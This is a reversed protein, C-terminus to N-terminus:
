ENEQYEFTIKRRRMRIPPSEFDNRLVIAHNEREHHPLYAVQDRTPLILQFKLASITTCSINSMKIHNKGFQNM